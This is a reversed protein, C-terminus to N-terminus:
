NTGCSPFGLSIRANDLCLFDLLLVLCTGMNPPTVIDITYEALVRLM